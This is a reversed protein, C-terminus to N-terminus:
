PAFAVHDQSGWQQSHLAVRDAPVADEGRDTSRDDGTLSVVGKGPLKLSLECPLSGSRFLAAAIVLAGAVSLMTKGCM